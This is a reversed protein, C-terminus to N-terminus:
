LTQEYIETTAMMTAEVNTTQEDITQSLQTQEDSINDINLATAELASKNKTAVNLTVEPILANSGIKVYTLDNFTSLKTPQNDQNVVTLDVTKISETELPYQLTVPHNQLYKKFGSLDASELKDKAIRLSLVGPNTAFGESRYSSNTINPFVNNAFNFNRPKPKQPLQEFGIYCGYVNDNTYTPEYVWNESGNLVMEGIRETVEGTLCNLEDKVKDIGRLELDEPTTLINSKFPEYSTAVSGEELQINTLSNNYSFRLQNENSNIQISTTNTISRVFSGNNYLAIRTMNKNSVYTKGSIVNIFDSTNRDNTRLNVLGNDLDITINTSQTEVNFLNKGTTTLVPMKVSQMGEFYPIDWNEMGDQYEIVMPQVKKLEELTLDTQTGKNIHLALSDTITSASTFISYLSKNYPVHTAGGGSNTIAWQCDSPLHKIIAIYKKTRNLYFM